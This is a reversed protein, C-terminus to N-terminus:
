YWYEWNRNIFFTQFCAVPTCFYQRSMGLSKDLWISEKLIGRGSIEGLVLAADSIRYKGLSYLILFVTRSCLLIDLIVAPLFDM